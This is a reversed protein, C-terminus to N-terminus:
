KRERKPQRAADTGSAAVVVKEIRALRDDIQKLTSAIDQLVPLSRESGSLFAKAPPPQRGAASALPDPSFCSGAYFSGALLLVPLGIRTFGRKVRAM